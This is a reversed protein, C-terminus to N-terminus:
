LRHPPSLVRDPRRKIFIGFVVKSWLETARAVLITAEDLNGHMVNIRAQGLLPFARDPRLRSAEAFAENAKSLDPLALYARGRIGLIEAEIRKGRRGSRIKKFVKDYKRQLLLTHGLPIIVLDPHAGLQEAYVLEREALEANGLSLYSKALLIHAAPNRRDQKIANKLQIIAAKFDKKNFWRLADEYFEHSRENASKAASAAVPALLLMTAAAVALLIPRLGYIM